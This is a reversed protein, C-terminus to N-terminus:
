KLRCSFCDWFESRSKVFGFTNTIYLLPWLRPNCGTNYVINCNFENLVFMYIDFDWIYRIRASNGAFNKIFPKYILKFDNIFFWRIYCVWKSDRLPFIYRVKHKVVYRNIKYNWDPDIICWIFICFDISTPYICFECNLYLLYDLNVLFIM